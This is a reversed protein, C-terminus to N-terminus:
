ARRKLALYLETRYPVTVSGDGNGHRTAMERLSAEVYAEGHSAIAPRITSRSLMMGTFRDISMDISWDHNVQEASEPWDLAQM